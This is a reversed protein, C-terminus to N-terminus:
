DMGIGCFRDLLKTEPGPVLDTERIKKKEKQSKLSGKVWIALIGPLEAKM